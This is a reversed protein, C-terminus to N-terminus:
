STSSLEDLIKAIRAGQEISNDWKFNLSPIHRLRLRNALERRIFGSASSLAELIEVKDRACYIGSVLVEAQSLDPTTTVKTVSIFGSLRPDKLEFQLLESIEERMLSNVRELRRSM